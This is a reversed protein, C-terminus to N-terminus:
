RDEPAPPATLFEFGEAIAVRFRQEPLLREVPLGAAEAIERLAEDGAVLAVADAAAKAGAAIAEQGESERFDLVNPSVFQDPPASEVLSRLKAYLDRRRAEPDFLTVALERLEAALVNGKDYRAVAAAAAASAERFDLLAADRAALVKKGKARATAAAVERADIEAAGIRNELVTIASALDAADQEAALSAGSAVSLTEADAEGLVRLGAVRSRESRADHAAEQAEDLRVRLDALRVHLEDSSDAM